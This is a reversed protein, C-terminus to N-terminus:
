TLLIDHLAIFQSHQLEGNLTYMCKQMQIKKRFVRRHRVHKPIQCFNFGRFVKRTKKKLRLFCDYHYLLRCNLLCRMLHHRSGALIVFYKVSLTTISVLRFFTGFMNFLHIYVLNGISIVKNFAIFNRYVSLVLQLILKGPMPGLLNDNWVNRMTKSYRGRIRKPRRNDEFM